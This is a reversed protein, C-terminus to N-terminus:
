SREEREPEGFQLRQVRVELAEAVHAELDAAGVEGLEAELLRRPHSLDERLQPAALQVALQVAAIGFQRRRPLEQFRSAGANPPAPDTRPRTRSAAPRRRRPGM